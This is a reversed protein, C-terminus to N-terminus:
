AEKKATFSFFSSVLSVLWAIGFFVIGTISTNASALNQETQVEALTNSDSFFIKALGDVRIQVFMIMSAILFVTMVIVLLSKVIDLIYNVKENVSFISLLSALLGFIFAFTAFTVITSSGLGQFFGAMSVSVNFIILAVLSLITSLVILINGVSLLNKVNIKM